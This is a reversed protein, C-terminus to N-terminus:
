ASSAREIAFFLAVFFSYTWDLLRTPAGHHQMLALWEMQDGPKPLHDAHHHARRQFDRVIKHEIGTVPCGELGDKLIARHLAELAARRRAYGPADKKELPPADAAHSRALVARELSSQFEFTWEAPHGRFMWQTREAAFREHLRLLDAWRAVTESTYSRPDLM